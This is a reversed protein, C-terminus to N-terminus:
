LSWGLRLDLLVMSANGGTADPSPGYPSAGFLVLYGLEVGLDVTLGRMAHARRGLIGKVGVFAGCLLSDRGNSRAVQVDHFLAETAAAVESPPTSVAKPGPYVLMNARVVPGLQLGGDFSGSPYFYVRAGLQGVSATAYSGFGLEQAIGIRPALREELLVNLIPFGLHYPSLTASVLSPLDRAADDADRKASPAPAPVQASALSSATSAAGLFAAVVLVRAFPTM